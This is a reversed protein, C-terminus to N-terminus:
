LAIQGLMTNMDPHVPGLTDALLVANATFLYFLELCCRVGIMSQRNGFINKILLELDVSGIPGPYGIQRVKGGSLAPQIKGAM